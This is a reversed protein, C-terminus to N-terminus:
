SYIVGEICAIALQLADMTKFFPYDARIQAAKEAIRGDISKVQIDMDNIFAYFSDILKM